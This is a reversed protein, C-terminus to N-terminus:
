DLYITFYLLCKLNKTIKTNMNSYLVILIMAVSLDICLINFLNNWGVWLIFSTKQIIACIYIYTRNYVDTRGYTMVEKTANWYLQADSFYVERDIYNLNLRYIIFLIIQFIMALVLYKIIKKRIEINDINKIIMFFILCIMIGIIIM